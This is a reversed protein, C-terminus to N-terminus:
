GIYQVTDCTVVGSSASVCLTLLGTQGATAGQQGFVQRNMDKRMDTAVGKTEADLLNVFAGENSKTAEIAMDTLQIGYIHYKIPIIADQWSQVGALPLTGGDARSGRGRNRNTHLPVIARRGTHDIHDSDREIQDLMFTKQNLQEVIPGVYLDKLIADALSLNQTAM